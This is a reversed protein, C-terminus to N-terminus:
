NMIRLNTLTPLCAEWLHSNDDGCLVEGLQNLNLVSPPLKRVAFCGRMDLKRLSSLEGIDEPLEDICYCGSLDLVNLKKHKRVSGPSNTLGICSRLRLVELNVLNGFEEPLSRLDWCNYISIKKLQILNCFDALQEEPQYCRDINIEELNPFVYSLKGAGGKNLHAKIHCSKLSIKKVSKLEMRNKTLSHIPINDLSIRKLNPLLELLEFNKSRGIYGLWHRHHGVIIVVKLENMKEVFKPLSVESEHSDLVLVEAKPLQIQPWEMSFEKDITISLLRANALQYTQEKWWKPVNKGCSDMIIRKREEVPDLKANYIALERLLDHQTVFRGGYYDDGEIKLYVHRKDVLTALNRNCLEHVYAFVFDDDLEYLEAWMDILDGVPIKKDEPFSGLDLYCDKVITLGKDLADLSSQLCLFLKTESDLVSSGKSWETDRKRWVELPQGALSRGVVTIALPFGNCRKIIKRSLDELTRSRKDGLATSHYFLKMANDDELLKLNYSSSYRPFESRSTVLIKYNSMECQFSELISESGSWVDDLVLLLPSPKEKRLTEMWQLVHVENQFGPVSSGFHGCLRQVVLELNGNQSVTIFLINNKFKGKVEEDQCFMTALTTKGCGGPATLVLMSVGDDYLLKEKLDKLPADMGVILRPLPPLELRTNCSSSEASQQKVMMSHIDDVAVDIRMVQLTEQVKLMELPTKLSEEWQLLKRAYKYKKFPSWRTITSCKNVLEQGKEMVRKLAELRMEPRNMKQNYQAMEKILPALDDLRSKADNFVSKFIYNKVILDEVGAYLAEFAKELVFDAM